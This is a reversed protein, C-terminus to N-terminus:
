SGTWAHAIVLRERAHRTPGGTDGGLPFVRPEWISIAARQRNRIYKRSRQAHFALPVHVGM